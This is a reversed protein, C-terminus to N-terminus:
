EDGHEAVLDSSNAVGHLRKKTEALADTITECTLLTDIMCRVRMSRMIRPGNRVEKGPLIPPGLRFAYHPKVTVSEAKPYVDRPNTFTTWGEVHHISQLRGDYRFALYNPLGNRYRDVPDFYKCHKTVEKFGLGWAGGESLSVVWVMNSQIVEMGLIESLYAGFEKLWAKAHSSSENKRAREVCTRIARWAIHRVGVGGIAYPLHIKAHEGSANSLSVLLATGSFASLRPAYKELQERTPLTVDRKAEILVFLGPGAIEVDTRGDSSRDGTTQLRVECGAPLTHPLGVLGLLEGVLASSRSMVWGLAYTM